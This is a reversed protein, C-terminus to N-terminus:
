IGDSLVLVLDYVCSYISANYNAGAIRSTEDEIHDLIAPCLSRM